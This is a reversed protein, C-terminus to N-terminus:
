TKENDNQDSFTNKHFMFVLEKWQDWWELAGDDMRSIKNDDFDRWREVTYFKCGIAIKDKSLVVQYKGTNM